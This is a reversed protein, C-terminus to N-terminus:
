FVILRQHRFIVCSEIYSLSPLYHLKANGCKDTPPTLVRIASQLPWWYDRDLVLKTLKPFQYDAFNICIMMNSGTHWSNRTSQPDYSDGICQPQAPYYQHIGTKPLRFIMTVRTLTTTLPKLFSRKHSLRMPWNRFMSTSPPKLPKNPIDLSQPEESACLLISSSSLSQM